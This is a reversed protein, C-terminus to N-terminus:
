IGAAIAWQNMTLDVIGMCEASHRGIADARDRCTLLILIGLQKLIFKIYIMMMLIQLEANSNNDPQKTM